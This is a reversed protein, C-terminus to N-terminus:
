PNRATKLARAAQRIIDMAEIDDATDGHPLDSLQKRLEALRAQDAATLDPKALLEDRERLAADLEPPRASPLDFLESTLIQDVRWQRVARPANDIVVGDPERRLVMLNADPAAQVILPSHATAIFQTNPFLRSLYPILDRQWRPHLHLDIEDILCVAPGTLPDERAGYREFLRSALDVIWATMTRYGLGIRSFAIWGDPGQVEVGARIQQGTARPVIRLDTIGPLVRTLLEFVRDRQRQAQQQFPSEANAILENQLLWEEPNRLTADDDFLTASPDSSSEATLGLPARRRNAGYGYVISRRNTSFPAFYYQAEVDRNPSPVMRVIAHDRAEPHAADIVDAWSVDYSINAEDQGTRHFELFGWSALRPMHTTRQELGANGPVQLTRTESAGLALLQLLTTKGTGNDGLILTWRAPLGERELTLIQTERFCRVHHVSLARFYANQAPAGNDSTADM